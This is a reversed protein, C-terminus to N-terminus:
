RTAALTAAAVERVTRRTDSASAPHRYHDVWILDAGRRVVVSSAATEGDDGDANCSEDGLGAGPVFRGMMASGDCWSALAKSAQDAGSIWWIRGYRLLRVKLNGYEDVGIPHNDATHFECAADSDGSYSAAPMREGFPVAREFLAPGIVACLDPPVAAAPESREWRELLHLGVGFVVFILVVSGLGVLCGRPGVQKSM